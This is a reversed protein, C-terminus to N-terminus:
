DEILEHITGSSKEMREKSKLLRTQNANSYFPDCNNSVVEFPLRNERIVARVFMNIAVSANMGVDNCFEEFAKKIDEDMRVNLTTQAMKM